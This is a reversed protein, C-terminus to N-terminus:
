LFGTSCCNYCALVVVTILFQKVRERIYTGSNDQPECIACGLIGCTIDDRLYVERVIRRVRGRRTKKLVINLDRLAFGDELFATAKTPNGNYTM